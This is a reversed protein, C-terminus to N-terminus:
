AARSSGAGRRWDRAFKDLDFHRWFDTEPRPQRRAPRRRARELIPQDKALWIRNREPNM